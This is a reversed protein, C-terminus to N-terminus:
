RIENSTNTVDTGVPLCEMLVPARDAKNAAADRARLVLDPMHYANLAHQIFSRVLPTSPGPQHNGTLWTGGVLWKRRKGAERGGKEGRGAGGKNLDTM